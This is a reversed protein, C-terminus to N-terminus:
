VESLIVIEARSEANDLFREIDRQIRQETLTENIIEQVKKDKVVVKGNELERVKVTSDFEPLIRKPYQAKFDPIFTNDYYTKEEDPTVVVFSRFRFEIYKEIAVRKRMLEQFNEDAVSDFGVINLRRIFEASSPFLALIRRIEKDIEKKTPPASPLRESELAILRFKIIIQLARNLDDSAPPNIPINPNLALQWVLDSYTILENRVGDSVTVVTKDVIKQANASTTFAVFIAITFVICFLFKNLKQIIRKM